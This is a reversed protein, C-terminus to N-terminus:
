YRYQQYPYGMQSLPTMQGQMPAQGYLPMSAGPRRRM